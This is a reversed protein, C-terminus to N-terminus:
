VPQRATSTSLRSHGHSRWGRRQRVGCYMVAGLALSIVAATSAVPSKSEQLLVAWCAVNENPDTGFLWTATPVIFAPLWSTVHPLLVTAILALGILLASNRLAIAIDFRYSAASSALCLVLIVGLISGRLSSHSRSSTLEGERYGAEFVTPLAAAYITPVLPWLLSRVGERAPVGLPLSPVATWAVAALLAALLLMRFQWARCFLM